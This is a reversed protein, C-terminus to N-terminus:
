NCDCTESGNATNEHLLSVTHKTLTSFLPFGDRSHGVFFNSFAAYRWNRLLVLICKSWCGMENM